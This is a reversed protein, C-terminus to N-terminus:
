RRRIRDRSRSPAGNWVLSQLHEEHARVRRDVGVHVRREHQLRHEAEIRGLDALRKENRRRGHSLAQHARLGLNALGADGELHGLRALQRLPQFGHEVRDVAGVAVRPLVRGADIRPGPPEGVLRDPERAHQAGAQRLLGLHAPQEREHKVALRAPRRAAGRVAPEHRQRRLIRTKPGGRDDVLRLRLESFDRHLAAQAPELELRRDLGDM